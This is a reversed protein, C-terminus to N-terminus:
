TNLFSSSDRMFAFFWEIIVSFEPILRSGQWGASSAAATFADLFFLLASVVLVGRLAGFIAGLLRDTGSLGTAQVLHSLASNVIGGVILTIVLLAGIACANRLMSDQIASFYVALDAYFTSAVWLAAFWTVLSLAEKVFGRMLSILASLVLVALITVDVWNLHQM